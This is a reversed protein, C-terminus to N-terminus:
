RTRHRSAPSRAVPEDIRVRFVGEATEVEYGACWRAVFVSAPTADPFYIAVADNLRM